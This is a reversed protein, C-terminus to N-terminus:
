GIASKHLKLIHMLKSTEVKDLSSGIVVPLFENLGLFEYRLNPLFPNLGECLEKGKSANELNPKHVKVKM